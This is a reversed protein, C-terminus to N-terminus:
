FEFATDIRVFVVTESTAEGPESVKPDTPEGTGKRETEDGCVTVRVPSAKVVRKFPKLKAPVLGSSKKM